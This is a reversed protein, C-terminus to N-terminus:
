ETVEIPQTVIVVDDGNSVGTVGVVYRLEYTGAKEPAKLMAPAGEQASLRTEYKFPKAGIEAISIYDSEFNPGRWNIPLASGAKVTTPSELTATVETVDIMQRALVVDDGNAGTVALVYRIEYQGQVGPVTLTTPSGKRTFERTIHKFPQTGTAAIAIYDGDQDPGTWDSAITQGMKATAPATVSAITDEIVIPRSALIVDDDNSNGQALVYRLEYTGVVGPMTLELPTGKRVLTRNMHLHPADSQAAVSIYDGEAGPGEWAVSISAGKSSVEPADLRAELWVGTNAWTKVKALLGDAMSPLTMVDPRARLNLGEAFGADQTIAVDHLCIAHWPDTLQKADCIKKAADLASLEISAPEAPHGEIAFDAATEGARYPLLPSNEQLRWRRTFDGHIWSWHDFGDPIDLDNKPDGDNDGLLGSVAFDGYLEVDVNIHKHLKRVSVAAVGSQVIRVLNDRPRTVLVGEVTGAKFSQLSLSASGNFARWTDDRLDYNLVLQGFRIGVASHASTTNTYPSLRVHVAFRDDEAEVLRMDGASQLDYLLRDFTTYHPEGWGGGKADPEDDPDPPIDCGPEMFDVMEMEECYTKGAQCGLKKAEDCLLTQGLRACATKLRDIDKECDEKVKACKQRCDAEGGGAFGDFFSQAKIPSAITASLFAALLVAFFKPKFM